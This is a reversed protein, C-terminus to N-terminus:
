QDNRRIREALTKIVYGLEPDDNFSTIIQEIKQRRMEGKVYEDIRFFSESEAQTIADVNSNKIKQYASTALMRNKERNYFLKEKKNIPPRSINDLKLYKINNKVFNLGTETLRWGDKHLGLLYGNKKPNKADSLRKRVKEMDIQDPYKLWTFRGPALENSKVAIDETNIPNSNGGLLYVAITVIEINSLPKNM